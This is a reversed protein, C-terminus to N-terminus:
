EHKVYVTLDHDGASSSKEGRSYNYQRRQKQDHSKKGNKNCSTGRHCSTMRDHKNLM